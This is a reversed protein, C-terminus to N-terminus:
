AIIYGAWLWVDGAIGLISLVWTLRYLINDMSGGKLFIPLDNDAQFKKRLKAMKPPLKGPATKPAAAASKLAASNRFLRSPTGFVGLEGAGRLFPRLSFCNRQM